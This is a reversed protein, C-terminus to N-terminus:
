NMGVFEDDEDEDTLPYFRRPEDPDFPIIKPPDIRPPGPFPFVPPDPDPDPDIIPWMPDRERNIDKWIPHDPPYIRALIRKENETYGLPTKGRMVEFYKDMGFKEEEDEDEDPDPLISTLGQEYQTTEGTMLEDYEKMGAKSGIGLLDQELADKDEKAKAVAEPTFWSPNEIIKDFNDLKSIATERAKLFSRIAKVPTPVFFSLVKNIIAPIQSKKEEEKDKAVQMAENDKAIAANLSAMAAAAAAPNALNEALTGIAAEDLDEQSAIDAAEPDVDSISTDDVGSQDGPDPDDSWGSGIGPDEGTDDGMYYAPIGRVPQGSGGLQKL